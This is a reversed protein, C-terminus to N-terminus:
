FFQNYRRSALIPYVQYRHETSILSYILDSFKPALRVVLVVDYKNPRLDHFIKSIFNVTDVIYVNRIGHVYINLKLNITPYPSSDIILDTILNKHPQTDMIHPQIDM